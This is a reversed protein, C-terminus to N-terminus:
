SPSPRYSSFRNVSGIVAVIRQHWIATIMKNGSELHHRIADENISEIRITLFYLRLIYYAIIM